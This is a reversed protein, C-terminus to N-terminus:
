ARISAKSGWADFWLGLVLMGWTQHSSLHDLTSRLRDMSIISGLQAADSRLHREIHARVATDKLWDKVPAGFGQKRRGRVSAPWADQFAARLLMKDRDTDVKMRSPLGICFEALEVDLFPARLELGHAMSARDIKTLIDGPMYDLVDYRMAVDVTNGHLAPDHDQAEAIVSADFGLERLTADSYFELQRRHADLVSLGRVVNGIGQSKEEAPQASNFRLSRAVRSTIRALQWRVMNADPEKEMWALPRYWSYGGLLEDGGDGTLVVKVHKRAERALLYTPIASSDGFPEDYLQAMESLMSGIDVTDAALEVHSTAFKRAADRAYEIESHSGLFDFSFTMISPAIKSAAHVITTSDLGGSLFAGVPVDAILQKAVAKHMLERFQAVAADFSITETPQPLTWYPQINVRGSEFILTHGPPLVHINDYITRHPHVYQRKLYHVVSSLRVKPEILGSALLAKIESAFVFEGSKSLAYYFPKEGFRDRACVLRRQADDWIAFAFMGPLRTVFDRGASRYLALIVETDSTTRFPYQTQTGRIDKYGYIEGNFTIGAGGGADLMPQEGSELDVIALRLHGLLAGNAFLHTGSGDPGRHGIARLMADLAARHEHARPSVIGAIGCM